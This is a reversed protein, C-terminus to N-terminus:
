GTELVFPCNTEPLMQVLRHHASTEDANVLGPVRLGVTWSEEWCKIQSFGRFGCGSLLNALGDGEGLLLQPPHPHLMSMTWLENSSVQREM